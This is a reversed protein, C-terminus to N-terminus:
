FVLCVVFKNFYIMSYKLMVLFLFFVSLDVLGAAIPTLALCKM